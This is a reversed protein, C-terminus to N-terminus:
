HVTIQIENQHYSSLIQEFNVYIIKEFHKIRLISKLNKTM